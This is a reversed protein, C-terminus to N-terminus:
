RFLIAARPLSLSMCHPSDKVTKALVDRYTVESTRTTVVMLNEDRTLLDLRELADDIDTWGMIKKLLTETGDDALFFYIMTTREGIRTEEMRRTSLALVLIIQAMIKGLLKEMETTLPVNTYYTLRQLFIHIRVFLNDLMEYSAIVDNAVQAALRIDQLRV